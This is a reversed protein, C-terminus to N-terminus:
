LDDLEHGTRGPRKVEPSKRGDCEQKASALRDRISLSEKSQELEEGRRGNNIVGDIMGYDDEITMEATRLPNDKWFQPVEEFGVSDCYYATDQGNQHLVVVDSVSMSRGKYDKPHDINFRTFLAELNDGPSIPATYVLEYNVHSVELGAAHLRDLSEFTYSRTEEKHPIQYISFTAQEVEFFPNPWDQFPMDPLRKYSGEPTREYPAVRDFGIGDAVQSLMGMVEPSERLHDMRTFDDVLYNQGGRVQLIDAASTRDASEVGLTLRAYPFGNVNMAPESNYPLGRLEQFRARVAKFSDYHELPSRDEANDSWTKLDAILYYNWSVTQAPQSQEYQPTVPVAFARTGNGMIHYKGDPSDHHVGYGAAEMQERTMGTVFFTGRPTKVTEGTQLDDPAPKDLGAAYEREAQKAAALMTDIHSKDPNELAARVAEVDVDLFEEYGIAKKLEALDIMIQDQDGMGMDELKAQLAAIKGDMLSEYIAEKRPFAEPYQAAYELDHQRFFEDMSYAIDMALETKEDETLEEADPSSMVRYEEPISERDGDYYETFRDGTNVVYGQDTFTGNEELYIDRGYAEYDIYNLIYDPIKPDEMEELYYRGLDDYDHIDTYIIYSDLNDALNILDQISGTHDGMEVAAQFREYDSQDMEDLVSALYNLEDLNEYEGLLNYLGDVYCDYDTIFWEEYVNGFDDKSGIGIRQFVQQIKEYTTPFKVWEGVLDGENYKGLNTIFAAFPYDKDYEYQPM